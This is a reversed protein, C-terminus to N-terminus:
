SQAVDSAFAVGNGSTIADAALQVSQRLQFLQMQSGGAVAFFTAAIGVTFNTQQVDTIQGQIQLLPTFHDGANATPLYGVDYVNPTPNEIELSGVTTPFAALLIRRELPESRALM